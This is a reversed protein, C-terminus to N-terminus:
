KAPISDMKDLIRVTELIVNGAIELSKPSLKDVTDQSTHWFVNNYGYDFDILDASPVGRNM